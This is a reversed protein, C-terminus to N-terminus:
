KYFSIFIRLYILVRISHCSSKLIYSKNHQSSPSKKQSPPQINATPSLQSSSSSPSIPSSLTPLPYILKQRRIWRRFIDDTIWDAIRVTFLVRWRVASGNQIGRHNRRCKEDIFRDRWRVFSGNQIGQHNRRCTWRHVRRKATRLQSKKIGRHNRRYFIGAIVEVYAFWGRKKFEWCETPLYRRITKTPIHRHGYRRILNQRYHRGWIALPIIGDSIGNTNLSNRTTYFCGYKVRSVRLRPCSSM